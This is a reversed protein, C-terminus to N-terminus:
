NHIFLKKNDIDNGNKVSLIYIGNLIETPLHIQHKVTKRNDGDFQDHYIIRGTLDIINLETSGVGLSKNIEIIFKRNTVPNPFISIKRDINAFRETGLRGRSQAKASDCCHIWTFAEKEWESNPPSPYIVNANIAALRAYGNPSTIDLINEKSYVGGIISTLSYSSPYAYYPSREDVHIARQADYLTHWRLVRNEVYLEDDGIERNLMRVNRHDCDKYLVYYNNSDILPDNRLHLHSRNFKYVNSYQNVEFIGTIVDFPTKSLKDNINEDRINPSLNDDNQYDLASWTPVFNWHFGDSYIDSVHGFAAFGNASASLTYHGDNNNVFTFNPFFTRGFGDTFKAIGLPVRQADQIGGSKVCYPKAGGLHIQALVPIFDDEIKIRWKRISIHHVYIGHNFGATIGYGDPNTRLEVNTGSLKLQVKKRRTIRLEIFKDMSYKLLFDNTTREMGDFDRTQGRGALSGNSMGFLKCYQPYNGMLNLEADLALKEPHPLYPGFPVHADVHYLLMQKAAKSDLLMNNANGLMQQTITSGFLMQASSRYFHQISLPINAGRNPSDWTMLLRTNHGTAPSCLTPHSEMFTLAYRAVIGGMSEGIVVFQMDCDEQGEPCHACKLQAILDYLYAANVRIDKRSNVWDVVIFTYGFNRLDDLKNDVIMDNWIEGADRNLGPLFDLVDIGELYIITKQYPGGANACPFYVSGKIGPTLITADPLPAEHKSTVILWSISAYSWHHDESMQVRITYKGAAPYTIKTHYLANPDSYVHWGSGDGFDIRLENLGASGPQGLLSYNDKLLNHPDIRFTVNSQAVTLKNPAAAFLHNIDFPEGYYGWTSPSIDTIVNNVSDFNYWNDTALADDKFSYYDYDMTMISVTDAGFLLSQTYLDDHRQLPITDFASSRMEAYLKFWTDTNITDQRSPLAVYILIDLEHAAMDYLFLRPYATQNINGYIGRLQFNISDIPNQGSASSSM